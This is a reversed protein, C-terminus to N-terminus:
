NIFNSLANLNLKMNLEFNINEKKLINEIPSEINTFIESDELGNKFILLNDRANAHGKIKITQKEKNIKIYSFTIGDPSMKALLELLYSWAIHENQIKLASNIQLNIKRVKDVYGRSTSTVLTTQEVVKTFNNQLLLKAALLIIAFIIAIIILVFNMKKLLLYIHRSKIEQKLEQSVLNLTLM